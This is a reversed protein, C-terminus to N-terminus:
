VASDAGEETLLVFSDKLSPQLRRISIIGNPRLAAFASGLDAEGVIGNPLLEYSRFAGLQGDDLRPNELLIEIREPGGRCLGKIEQSTGSAILRGRDIVGIRDCLLEAEDMYHTCVPITRGERRQGLIFRRIREATAPDLGMTPEDLMLLEPDHVLARAIALRQRMGKSFTAVRDDARDGLGVLSLLLDARRDIGDQRGYLRAFYRLLQRATLRLYLSPEEPLYGIRGKAEGGRKKIDLGFVRATGDFNTLIGAAIRMLTSKGAGNPGILGYCEGAEVALSVRDLALFDGYRKTVEKLDLVPVSRGIVQGEKNKEVNHFAHQVIRAALPM